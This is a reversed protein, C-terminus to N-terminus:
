QPIIIATPRVAPDPRHSLRPRDRLPLQEPVNVEVLVRARRRAAAGAPRGGAPLLWGDRQARDARRDGRGARPRAEADYLGNLLHIAGPGSTAMCVGVKGSFKAYGYPRSRRCRRTGARSSREALRRGASRPSSATSATAPTPSSRSSGGSACGGWSMTGWRRPWGVGRGWEGTRATRGRRAASVGAAVHPRRRARGTGPNARTPVNAERLRRNPLGSPTPACSTGVRARSRLSERPVPQRRRCATRVHTRTRASSGAHRGRSTRRTPRAARRGAAARAAPSRRRRLRARPSSRPSPTRRACRSPRPAPAAARGAVRDDDRRANLAYVSALWATKSTNARCWAAPRPCRSRRPTGRRRRGACPDDPVGTSIAARSRRSTAVRTPSGIVTPTARVFNRALTALPTALGSPSSTTGGSPSSANRCGSAPPAARPHRRRHGGPLQVLPADRVTPSTARARRVRAPTSARAPAGAPVQVRQGVVPVRPRHLHAPPAPEIPACRASPRRGRVGSSRRRRHQDPQDVPHGPAHPGGVADAAGDHQPQPEVVEGPRGPRVRQGARGRVGVVIRSAARPAARAAPGSISSRPMVSTPM